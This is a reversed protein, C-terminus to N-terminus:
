QWHPGDMAIPFLPGVHWSHIRRSLVKFASVYTENPWPVILQGMDANRKFEIIPANRVYDESQGDEIEYTFSPLDFEPVPPCHDVPIREPLRFLTRVEDANIAGGVPDQLVHVVYSSETRIITGFRLNPRRETVDSYTMWLRPIRSLIADLTLTDRVQLSRSYKVNQIIAGGHRKPLVERQHPDTVAVLEAFTGEETEVELDLVSLTGKSLVGTWGKARLGHSPKLNEEKAAVNLFLIVGRSLSLVGYFLLLPRVAEAAIEANRFYEEAQVVCSTIEWARQASLERDHKHEFTRRVLDHTRFHALSSWLDRNM